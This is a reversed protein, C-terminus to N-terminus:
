DSLNTSRQVCIRWRTAGTDLFTPPPVRHPGTVGGGEQKFLLLTPIGTMRFREALGPHQDVNVKAVKARRGIRSAVQELVPAQLRCPGCWPAWSDVLTVGNQVAADFDATGLEVVQRAATETKLISEFKSHLRRLDDALSEEPSGRSALPM